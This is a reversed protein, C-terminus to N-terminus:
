GAAKEIFERLAPVMYWRAIDLDAFTEALIRLRSELPRTQNLVIFREDRVQCYGGRFDGRGQVLVIDMQEALREFQSFLEEPKM